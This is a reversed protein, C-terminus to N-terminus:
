RAMQARLADWREAGQSMVEEVTAEGIMAQAMLPRFSAAWVATWEKWTGGRATEIQAQLTPMDVWGSWAEIVEPDELLPLQGFGLGKEIAWRKAVAYPPGAMFDVFKWAAERRERNEAASSTIAYFKTFGLTSQAEGPMRALAFEGALPQDAKNNMAALVYNYVITFAHKGSNMAPIITSEHNEFAVLGEAIVDRLWSLQQFAANDPRNFIAEGEEDFLDGGRGYAQAVFADYFNPLEQNFEYVIPREMGNAKLKRAADAVEEWSTPVEIAADKLIRQNYIFSITDAYYPLGYLHGDYTMDNITFGALDKKYSEIADAAIEDLPYLYGAAAWAPLWDQGGYIVDTTTNGRFRLVVSDHYDPWTYDTVNVKIGPNEAEFQRVNDQITDLSYNWVVFELTVDKAHVAAPPWAAAALLSLAAVGAMGM